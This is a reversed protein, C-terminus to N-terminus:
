GQEAGIHVFVDDDLRNDANRRQIEAIINKLRNDHQGSSNRLIASRYMRVLEADSASKIEDFHNLLM